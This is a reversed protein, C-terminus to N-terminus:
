LPYSFTDKVETSRKRGVFRRLLIRLFGGVHVKQFAHVEEDLYETRLAVLEKCLSFQM